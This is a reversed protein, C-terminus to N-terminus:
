KVFPTLACTDSGCSWSEPADLRGSVSLRESPGDLSWTKWNVQGVRYNTLVRERRDPMPGMVNYGEGVACGGTLECVTRAVDSILVPAASEALAGRAGFPKVMLSMNYLGALTPWDRGLGVKGAGNIPTGNGHDSLVILMSQDYVGLEKLRALLGTIALMSCTGASLQNADPKSKAPLNCDADYRFWPSHSAWSHVFFVKPADTALHVDSAFARLLALHHFSRQAYVNAHVSPTGFLAALAGRGSDDSDRRVSLPLVRNIALDLLMMTDHFAPRRSGMRTKIEAITICAKIGAPCAWTAVPDFVFTEYGHSQLQVLFSKEVVGELWAAKM